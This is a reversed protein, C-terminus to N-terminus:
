HTVVSRLLTAKEAESGVNFNDLGACVQVLRNSAFYGSGEGATEAMGVELFVNPTMRAKANPNLLKKFSIFVGNPISGKSSAQPPPHPPQATPPLPHSPNFAFHVLLGLAYSDAAAIPNRDHIRM